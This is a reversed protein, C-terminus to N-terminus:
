SWNTSLHFLHNRTFQYILMTITLYTSSASMKWYFIYYQNFDVNMCIQDLNFCSYFANTCRIIHKLHYLHNKQINDFKTFIWYLFNDYFVVHYLRKIFSWQFFTFCMSWVNQARWVWMRNLIWSVLEIVWVLHCLYLRTSNWMCNM